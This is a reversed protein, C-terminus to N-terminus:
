MDAQWYASLWNRGEVAIAAAYGPMPVLKRIVWRRSEESDGTVNLPVDSKDLAFSVSFSELPLSLGQGRAKIYAEKCTWCNFFGEARVDAPMQKLMAIEDRSFFKEAIDEFVFGRSIYEIDIGIERELTFAYLALEHSHSVNFCLAARDPATASLSPKGFSNYKFLIRAPEIGLYNGLITRLIGRTLVFREHDKRFRYKEARKIEDPSLIRYFSAVNAASQNLFARWFHVENSGLRLKKPPQSWAIVSSM